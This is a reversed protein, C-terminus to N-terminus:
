KFLLELMKLTDDDNLNAKKKLNVVDKLMELNTLMKLPLSKDSAIGVETEENEEKKNEKMYDWAEQICYLPVCYDSDKKFVALTNIEYQDMVFSKDAFDFQYDCNLDNELYYCDIDSDYRCWGCKIFEDIIKDYDKCLHVTKDKYKNMFDTMEYKNLYCQRFEKINM